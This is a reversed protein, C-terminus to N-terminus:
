KVKNNKKELTPPAMAGVPGGREGDNYVFMHLQKKYM